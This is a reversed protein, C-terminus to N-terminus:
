TAAVALFLKQTFITYFQHVKWYGWFKYYSSGLFHPRVVGKGWINRYTVVYKDFVCQLVEDTFIQSKYCMPHILTVNGGNEQSDSQRKRRFMKILIM